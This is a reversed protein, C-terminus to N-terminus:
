KINPSHIFSTWIDCLLSGRETPTDAGESICQTRQGERYISRTLEGRGQGAMSSWERLGMLGDTGESLEAM